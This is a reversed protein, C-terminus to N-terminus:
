SGFIISIYLFTDPHCLSQWMDVIPMSLPPSFGAVRWITTEASPVVQEDGDGKSEFHQPLWLHLLQGLTLSPDECRKQILPKSPGVVLRVPIMALHTNPDAQIDEQIPKYVAYKSTVIADWIRHHTQKTMNLAVKNQGHQLVLAQKLSNKFTREVTTLVGSSAADLDLLQSSPYNTFHVRIRWPILNKGTSQSAYSDWLVGAFLQWQLPLQSDEDELWCLPYVISKQKITATMSKTTAETKDNHANAAANEESGDEDKTDDDEPSSDDGLTDPEEVVRKTFSFTPPAYKHLRLVAEQLGIHLFTHRSLLVHIPAPVTPSSLSTPALSLVIPISGSWNAARLQDLNM